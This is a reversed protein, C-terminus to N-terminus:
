VLKMTKPDWQIIKKSFYSDNCSLAPAAARFGFEADEVVEKGSRIADFFNTFHDLHDSYGEPAKYIVDGIAKRQTQEKTWKANYEKTMQEQMREPFTFVSDYGGFGPAEPMINKKVTIDNGNVQIVGKSGILEIVEKGGTGSIFNVRVNLQFAPHEDSDPYQMVGSMVDPMNRGDKWYSFQGTSYISEPGISNTMFHTGSLLHIYLDGAVGTGLEKFARWWFFKKADFAMKDTVEIFTEWDTTEASADNPITYEWAGISSQRDWMANVMNLNGIEGSALLEKAKAYGVSSVRQSGIQCVKGSAKAAKMVAYGEEIKHVMPKELYVHKGKALADLTIQAHWVDTTCILVADIDDRDLLDKYNRTTYLDKGFEEKAREVRGSYLDCIGALEVGPVKLATSLDFHGQVGYGIVGIRVKDNASFIKDYRLIREEAKEQAFSAFPTAASALTTAGIQYLFRRRANKNNNKM